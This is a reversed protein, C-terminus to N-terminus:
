VLEIGLNKLLSIAEPLSFIASKIKNIAPDISYNKAGTFDAKELDCQHFLTHELDCGQFNAEQLFTQVFRSERILCQDFSIGKLKMSSFNCMDLLTKEFAMQLFSTNCKTFDAGVLKSEKFTVNKLGTNMFSPLNLECHDFICDFFDTGTFDSKDFKCKLFIYGNFSEGKLTAGEYSKDKITQNDTQM